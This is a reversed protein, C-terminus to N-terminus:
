NKKAMMVYVLLGLCFVCFIVVSTKPTVWSFLSDKTSEDKERKYKEVEQETADEKLGSVKTEAEGMTETTSATYVQVVAFFICGLVVFGVMYETSSAGSENPHFLDTLM